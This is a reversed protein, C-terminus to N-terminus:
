EMGAARRWDPLGRQIRRTVAELDFAEPDFAGGAWTLLERHREHDPDAIADLFEAYGPMGGVDEPPCNRGGELCVPYKRGPEAKLCGEFVVEHRWGDGFDYEYEFAFRTGAKPVLDGLKVATSDAYGMETFTDGM